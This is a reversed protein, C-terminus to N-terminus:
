GGRYDCIATVQVQILVDDLVCIESIEVLDTPPNYNPSSRLPGRKVGFEGTLQFIIQFNGNPRDIESLTKVPEFRRHIPSFLVTSHSLRMLIVTEKEFTMFKSLSGIKTLTRQDARAAVRLVHLVTTFFQRLSPLFRAMTQIREDSQM